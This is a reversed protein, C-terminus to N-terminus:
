SSRIPSHPLSHIRDSMSFYSCSSIKLLCPIEPVEKYKLTLRTNKFNNVYNNRDPMVNSLWPEKRELLTSPCFISILLSFSARASTRATKKKKVKEISDSIGQRFDFAYLGM